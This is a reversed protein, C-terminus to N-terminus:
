RRRKRRQVACAQRASKRGAERAREMRQLWSKPARRSVTGKKNCTGTEIQEQIRKAIARGYNEPHLGAERSLQMSTTEAFYMGSFWPKKPALKKAKEVIRAPLPRYFAKIEVVEPRDRMNQSAGRIVLDAKQEKFLADDPPSCHFDYAYDAKIKKAKELIKKPAKIWHIETLEDMGFRRKRKSRLIKGLTTERPKMKEWVVTHGKRELIKKTERAAAIAFAENQHENVILLIRAM